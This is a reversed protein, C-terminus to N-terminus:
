FSMENLRKIREEIPPHTDFLSTVGGKRNDGGLNQKFPNVIYLHATAKNAAELPESDVAIKQLAQALGQPYRTLLAGSADALFERKRSVALQILTAAIPSLIALILGILIFIGNGGNDDRKRFFSGRFLWDSLLTVVGVLVVIITSLRIDYNGIHSLEHSIVGELEPKTLKSRLGTTIAVVAHKPDRGTAFANPATDEMLYIKPTPLGAAISLNEVTRYLEADETRKVERAGSMGLVIKDSYFYSIFSMFTSIGVALPLLLPANAVRAFIYGLGIILILFFTILLATRRKNNAIENYVM